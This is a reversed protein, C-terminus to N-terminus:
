ARVLAHVCICAFSPLMVGHKGAAAAAASRTDESGHMRSAHRESVCACMFALSLARVYCVEMNGQLLQQRQDLTKVLANGEDEAASAAAATTGNGTAASSAYHVSACVM